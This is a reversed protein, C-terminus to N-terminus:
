FFNSILQAFIEGSTSDPSIPGTISSSIRRHWPKTPATEFKIRDGLLEEFSTISTERCNSSVLRLFLAYFNKPGFEGTGRLRM